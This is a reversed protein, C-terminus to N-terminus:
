PQIILGADEIESQTPISQIGKRTISVSAVRNAFIGARVPDRTQHYQFFFASAFIDGSGTSDVERAEFAPLNCYEDKWYISAGQAAKTVALVRCHKAMETEAEENFQLDEDSLVVADAKPLFRKIIEWSTVQVFDSSDWVRLWGQPTIGILESSFYNLLEPDVERAIPALHVIKANRWDEPIDHSDLDTAKAAIKQIRRHETYINEFSTTNQSALKHLRIGALASLDYTDSCSTVIAVRLGLSLATLGSYSVSGGLAFGENTRDKAVHGIALYDILPPEQRMTQM